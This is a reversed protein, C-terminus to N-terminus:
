VSQGDGVAIGTQLNHLSEKFAGKVRENGLMIKALGVRLYESVAESLHHIRNGDQGFEFILFSSLLIITLPLWFFLLMKDNKFNQRQQFFRNLRAQLADEEDESSTQSEEGLAPRNPITEHAVTRQLSGIVKEKGASPFLDEYKPLEDNFASLMRNWISTEDENIANERAALLPRSAHSNECESDDDQLLGEDGDEEYDDLDDDYDDSLTDEVMKSIHVQVNSDLSNLSEVDFISSQFSSDSMKRGMSYSLDNDSTYDPDLIELVENLYDEYREDETDHNAIFLDRPIIENLAMSGLSAKCQVLLRIIRADGNLCAFHLPSFGFSDKADVRAGKKILTSALHYYGKLCSLHLMTQGEEDCMSLNSSSNLLKVVRLLLIEDSFLVQSSGNEFSNQPANSPTPGNSSGGDSGVIRKAINRADELKGNMKLGVIQLALEILQRDTDDVYTFIAKSNTMQSIKTEQVDDKDFVSVLVQGATSSPPLYTVLTSDSWCQTSLARNEGFKVIMGSKFNSGLLTVEIGGKVPGQSPIVRHITPKNQLSSDEFNAVGQLANSQPSIFQSISQATQLAPTDLVSISASSSSASLSRDPRSISLSRTSDPIFYSAHPGENWTRKRKYGSSRAVAASSSAISSTPPAHSNTDTTHPESSEEGISTPSLMPGSKVSLNVHNEDIQPKLQEPGSLDSTSTVHPVDSQESKSGDTHKASETASDHGNISVSHDRNPKKDMIMISSTIAKGLTNNKSDRLVFLLKFGEPEKHHRCYCVIRASLEFSKSDKGCNTDKIVFVQKSNFVVARRNENNCWLMNDSLGSKRRSARRQERKVCRSCVYTSKNNSACILFSELYLMQDQIEKPYNTVDDQLYCKQKTICDTPLHIIYEKPAPSISIDLKIQTEVRSTPPMGTVKLKFPLSEEPVSLFDSPNLYVTQIPKSRGFVLQHDVMKECEHSYSQSASVYLPLEDLPSVSKKKISAMGVEMRDLLNPTINDVVVADAKSIDASAINNPAQIQLASSSNLAELDYQRTQLTYNPQPQIVDTNIFTNFIDEDDAGLEAEAKNSDEANGPFLFDELLETEMMNVDQQYFSGDQHRTTFTGM